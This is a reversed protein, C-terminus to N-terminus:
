LKGEPGNESKLYEIVERVWLGVDDLDHVQNLYQDWGIELADKWKEYSYKLNRLAATHYQCLRGDETAKRGCLECTM